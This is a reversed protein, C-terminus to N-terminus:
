NNIPIGRPITGLDIDPLSANYTDNIAEITLNAVVGHGQNSPHVGDFSFLSGPVPTLTIGNMTIGQEGSSQQFNQFIQSFTDNIDVLAWSNASAANSITNNYNDVVQNAQAIESNGASTPTPGDLIYQNPIPNNPKIPPPTEGTQVREFYSTASLLILDNARMVRTGEVAEIFIDFSGESTNFQYTQTIENYSIIGENVLRTRLLFVYPITTVNPINYLVAKAGTQAITSASAQYLQRFDSPPVYAQTGGSTVYGLIDNSGLWFLVFTPDLAALQESQTNGMDRLVLDFFPNNQRRASYPASPLDQGLFDALLANPIGLNNYPRDLDSNIPQGQEDTQTPGSLDSGELGLRGLGIGPDSVLPQEFNQVSEMQGAVLSPYSYRQATRYLAGNQYGATLSNGVAAVMSFDAEGSNSEFNVDNFDKCASLSVATILLALFVQLSLTRFKM